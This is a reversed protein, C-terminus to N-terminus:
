FGPVRRDSHCVVSRAYSIEPRQTRAGNNTVKLLQQYFGLAEAPEGAAEAARGANYLANFRNPSLKLAIRYQVLSESPRNDALLMDAYMERAPIDVEAQGVRDQMDAAISIQKFAQEDQKHAFSQWAQIIGQTVAIEAGIPSGEKQTADALQSAAAAAKDAIGDDRLHGAAIAQAWFRFYKTSAISNAPEPIALVAKWDHMELNYISPFEVEVYTIFPAMGDDAADPLSHLHAAMPETNDLVRKADADDAQQLYAYILFEYAHLEHTVGGLHNTEAYESARLSAVNSNIDEQWMGLRAFIHGPMHLAHASSPAITAYKEAAPLGERALQPSDCTHIIYHAFGPHDPYAKFGPELVALAKRADAVPDEQGISAALALGYFAQAEMDDPYATHLAGMAAAYAHTTKENQSPEGHLYSSLAAIYHEERDTRPHLTMAKDIEAVGAKRREDPLGDWFPRWETMAIAWQAMACQPDAAAVSQFQKLAEEYWFSHLLAIGREFPTQVSVACSIPMHVAGLKELVASESGGEARHHHQQQATLVTSSALLALVVFVCFLKKMKDGSIASSISVHLAHITLHIEM